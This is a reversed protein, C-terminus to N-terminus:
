ADWASSWVMYRRNMRTTKNSARGPRDSAVVALRLDIQCFQHLQDIVDADIIATRDMFALNDIRGLVILHAVEGAGDLVLRTLQGCGAFVVAM